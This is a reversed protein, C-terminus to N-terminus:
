HQVLQWTVDSFLNLTSLDVNKCAHVQLHSNYSVTYVSRYMLVGSSLGTPYLWLLGKHCRSLKLSLFTFLAKERNIWFVKYNSWGGTSGWVHSARRCHANGAISAERQLEQPSLYGKWTVKSSESRESPCCFFHYNWFRLGKRPVINERRWFLHTWAASNGLGPGNWQHNGVGGKDNVWTCCYSIEIRGIRKKEAVEKYVVTELHSASVLNTDMTATWFALIVEHMSHYRWRMFQLLFM